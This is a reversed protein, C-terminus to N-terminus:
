RPGTVTRTAVYDAYTRGAARTWQAARAGHVAFHEALVPAPLESALALLAGRRGPRVPMGLVKLQRRLGEATVHAGHKRGPMLWDSERAAARARRPGSAVLEALLDDLLAPAQVPRRGFRLQWGAPAHILDGRRLAAVRTLAQAFLLVAVAALRIAPDVRRDALLATLAQLRQEDSAIPPNWCHRRRRRGSWSSTRWGAAIATPGRAVTTSASAM